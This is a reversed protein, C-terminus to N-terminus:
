EYNWCQKAHNNNLQKKNIRIVLIIRQFMLILFLILCPELAVLKYTFACTLLSGIFFLCGDFPEICHLLRSPSM